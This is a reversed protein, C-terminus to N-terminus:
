RCSRGCLSCGPGLTFCGLDGAGPSGEAVQLGVVALCSVPLAETCWPAPMHGLTAAACSTSSLRVVLQSFAKSPSGLSPARGWTPRTSGSSSKRAAALCACPAWSCASMKVAKGVRSLWAM